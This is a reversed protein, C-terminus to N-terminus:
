PTSRPTALTELHEHKQEASARISHELVGRTWRSGGKLGGGGCYFDFDLHFGLGYNEEDPPPFFVGSADRFQFSEPVDEGNKVYYLGRAFEQAERASANRLITCIFTNWIARRQPRTWNDWQAEFALIANILAQRRMPTGDRIERPKFDERFQALAEANGAIAAQMMTTFYDVTYIEEKQVFYGQPLQDTHQRRRETEASGDTMGLNKDTFLAALKQALRVHGNLLAVQYPYVGKGDAGVILHGAYDKQEAKWFLSKPTKQIMAEGTEFDGLVLHNIVMQAYWRVREKVRPGTTRWFFPASKALNVADTLELRNSILLAGDENLKQHSTTFNEAVSTIPNTNAM